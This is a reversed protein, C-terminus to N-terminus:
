NSLIGAELSAWDYPNQEFGHRQQATKPPSARSGKDHTEWTILKQKWNKVPKGESDKWGGTQFYDWFTRPDVSSKREACYAVVEELTPPVFRARTDIEKDKGKAKETDKVKEKPEAKTEGQNGSPETKTGDQNTNPETKTVTQNRNPEAKTATRGGKNGNERRRANADIQPRILKFIVLPIGVADPEEGTIAYKCVIDYVALRNVDDLDKIADWFSSYFIFGDTM